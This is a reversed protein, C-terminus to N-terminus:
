CSRPAPRCQLRARLQDLTVPKTIYDDMGASLCAERTGALADATMAIIWIHRDPEEEARIRRVAEYGDMEPMQCDMVIADYPLVRALQVAEVGNGALDVRFGLRQLMSTAVKQNVVNDEVLLIRGTPFAADTKTDNAVPKTEGKRFTATLAEVLQARRVPKILWADILDHYTERLESLQCVSSLLVLKTDQVHEDRRIRRALSIGDMEPMHYDLIAIQYPEGVSRAAHLEELAEVGSGVVANRIGKSVLQEHLIRRNVENDDVCLIRASRLDPTHQEEPEVRTELPLPISFSFVSGSGLKSQVSISGGM